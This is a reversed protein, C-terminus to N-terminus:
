VRNAQQLSASRQYQIAEALHLLEIQPSDVLDAITRALRLIRHLARGSYHLRAQAQQLLKKGDPPITCCDALEEGLLRQNSKGQRQYQRTRAALVRQAVMSSSEGPPADLLEETTLSPVLVQMDIRDLLPGSLRAQYRAIMPATCLCARTAHGLYGCPCPNMAAILQFQAPFEAQQAARSISVVGTQLPERLSELAHRSFEPFEDLFLVGHHALSIEGPRPVGGGGILAVMSASHHPARFPRQRWYATNFGQHSLSLVAASELAEVESMPPLIGRLRHALMSKGSGPPGILLMGHQGAAAIELARRAGLQGRLDSLDHEIGFTPPVHACPHIPLCATGVLHACVSLLDPAAFIQVGPVLAAEHACLAPLIFKAERERAIAHTMALAGRIPRLQGNLSLEGAFEYDALAASPIQGSAALLGLAIPLDYRGSEKPLDAPALNVTIRRAPFEFGCTQLAARVRERSERVEVDPLGVLTFSPLGNALHVEVTIAPARMGALARSKIMALGM